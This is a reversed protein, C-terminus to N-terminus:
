EFDNITGMLKKSILENKFEDVIKDARAVTDESITPMEEAGQM